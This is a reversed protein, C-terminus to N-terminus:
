LASSTVTKTLINASDQWSIFKFKSRILSEKEDILANDFCARSIVETGELINEPDFYLCFEGGAEPISTRNSAVCVKGFALSETVPLGWGEYLSPFITFRCGRYLERLEADSPDSIFLIKGGLFSCNKLQQMLDAVLWGQRGAFVLTPVKDAGFQELLRRWVRFVFLHNKRAEITSVFLVFESQPLNVPVVAHGMEAPENFGSGIPLVEIPRSPTLNNKEMWALLDEATFKSIAFLFEAKPICTEFWRTFCAVLAADCWEPRVIPILDYILLALKPAAIKDDHPRTAKELFAAYDEHFWPSGLVCFIDGPRLLGRIDQGKFSTTLKTEKKSTTARAPFLVKLFNLAYRFVDRQTALVLRQAAYAQAIPERMEVSLTRVFKRLAGVRQPSFQRTETSHIDKKESIKLESLGLFLSKIELWSVERLLQEDRDHRCFRVSYEQQAILASYLEYCLRQIGSPRANHIAYQFLDEVDLWIQPSVPSPCDMSQDMDTNKRAFNGFIRFEVISKM